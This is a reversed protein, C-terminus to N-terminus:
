RMQFTRCSAHVSKAAAVRTSFICIFASRSIIVNQSILYVRSRRGFKNRIHMTNNKSHRSRIFQTCPAHISWPKIISSIHQLMFHIGFYHEVVFCKWIFRGIQKHAWLYFLRYCSWPWVILAVWKCCQRNWYRRKSHVYKKAFENETRTIRDITLISIKASALYSATCRSLM